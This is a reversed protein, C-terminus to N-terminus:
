EPNPDPGAPLPLGCQTGAACTKDALTCVFAPLSVRVGTDTNMEDNLDVVADPNFLRPHRPGPVFPSVAYCVIHDGVALTGFNSTDPKWTTTPACLLRAQLLQVNERFGFQDGINVVNVAPREGEIWYCQFPSIVNSAGGAGGGAQAVTVPLAVFAVVALIAFVSRGRTM